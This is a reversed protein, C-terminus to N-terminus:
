LGIKQNKLKRVNLIDVLIHKQPELLHPQRWKFSLIDQYRDTTMLNLQSAHRLPNCCNYGIVGRWCWITAPWSSRKSPLNIDRVRGPVATAWHNAHMARWAGRSNVELHPLKSLLKCCTLPKRQCRLALFEEVVLVTQWSIVKSLGWEMLGDWEVGCCSSITFHYLFHPLLSLFRASGAM